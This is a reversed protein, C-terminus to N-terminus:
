FLVGAEIVARTQSTDSFTPGLAFGPTSGDANVYSFEARVFGIGQQYTPTVTMSWAKSGPGYILNAAGSAVDGSSTIYETRAAVSFNADFAYKVLVAGGLTSTSKAIGTTANAPVRTYQLYSTLTWPGDNHTYILNYIDQNNLLLPSALTNKATRGLNGGAIATITNAGDIAYSASIWGWNFRNSYFGDNWSASVTLPGDAYTAQIGRNVANEQNWLLGRQINMNEFSWTYEAGILTPLKGAIISFSSSPALKIFAQPVAGFFGKTADDSRIHPLGLDPLSYGGAQVFFQIPGDAKTIFVQGSSLDALTEDDGPFINNQWLGIGTVAGTIYVEGLPGANFSTPDANAALPGTMGPLPLSGASASVAALGSLEIGLVCASLMLRM